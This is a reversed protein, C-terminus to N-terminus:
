EAASMVISTTVEDTLGTNVSEVVQTSLMGKNPDKHEDVPKLVLQAVKGVLKNESEKYVDCVYHNPERAKWEFPYQENLKPCTAKLHGM